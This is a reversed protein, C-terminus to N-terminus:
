SLLSDDASENIANEAIQIRHRRELIIIRRRIAEKAWQNDTFLPNGDEDEPVEFFFKMTDILRQVKADPINFQVIM